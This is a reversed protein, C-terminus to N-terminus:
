RGLCRAMLRLEYGAAGTEGQSAYRGANQLRCRVLAYEDAALPLVALEREVNAFLRRADRKSTVTAALEAVLEAAKRYVLELSTNTTPPPQFAVPLEARCIM